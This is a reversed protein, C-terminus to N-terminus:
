RRVDFGGGEDRRPLDDVHLADVRAWDPGYQLWEVFAAVATADREAEGVVAGDPENQVFGSLGLRQARRQTHARFGVGQVRGLVRFRVRRPSV